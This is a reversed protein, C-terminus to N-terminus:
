RFLETFSIPSIEQEAPKEETSIYGHQAHTKEDDNREDNADASKAAARHSFFGKHKSEDIVLAKEDASDSRSDVMKPSLSQAFFFRHFVPDHHGACIPEADNRASSCIDAAASSLIRLSGSDGMRQLVVESAFVEKSEKRLCARKENSTRREFDVTRFVELIYISSSALFDGNGGKKGGGMNKGMAHAPDDLGDDLTSHVGKTSRNYRRSM